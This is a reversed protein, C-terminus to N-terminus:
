MSPMPLNNNVIRIQQRFSRSSSGAYIDSVSQTFMLDATLAHRGLVIRYDDLSISGWGPLGYPNVGRTMTWKDTETNSVYGDVDDRVITDPAKGVTVDLGLRIEFETINTAVVEEYSNLGVNSTRLLVLTDADSSYEVHYRVRRFSDESGLKRAMFTYKPPHGLDSLESALDGSTGEIKTKMRDADDPFNNLFIGNEKFTIIAKEPLDTYGGSGGSSVSGVQLIVAENEPNGDVDTLGANWIANDEYLAGEYLLRVKYFVLIDGEKLDNIHDANSSSLQVPGSYTGSSEWQYDSVFFTPRTDTATFDYDFWQLTISSFNRGNVMDYDLDDIGFFFPALQSAQSEEPDIGTLNENLVFHINYANLDGVGMGAASIDHRLMESLGRVANTQATKRTANNVSRTVQSITTVLGAMVVATIAVTLLVEVLSVGKHKEFFVM